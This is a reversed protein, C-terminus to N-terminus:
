DLFEETRSYSFPCLITSYMKFIDCISVHEKFTSQQNLSKSQIYRPFWDWSTLTKYTKEYDQNEIFNMLGDLLKNKDM